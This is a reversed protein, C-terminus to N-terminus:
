WMGGTRSRPPRAPLLRQTPGPRVPAPADTPLRRPWVRLRSSSQWPPTPPPGASHVGPRHPPVPRPAGPLAASLNGESSSTINTMPAWRGSVGAPTTQRTLPPQPRPRGPPNPQGARRRGGGHGSSVRSGGFRGSSSPRGSPGSGGHPGGGTPGGGRPGGSPGGGGPGRHPGGGGHSGPRYPGMTSTHPRGRVWGLATGIVYARAVTGVVSRRGGGIRLSGLIWFPIMTLIYFLALAMLLNVLGSTTAGFPTFGGPALFVTIATILTLSQAIQIALCGGFAKWWWRAIGETQPLAHFMLALPAGAVLVVTLAVRVLYTVLVVLLMGAVFVGVFLVFIGGNVSSLVLDRLTAGASAAELGGGMVAQAVGNAIEIAKSAVWLSMAGAVFGIVIRPAIEKISYQTQLSEYAMVVMGAILILLAYCALLIQWSNTWLQGIRPLSDVTPTTLLTTSLLELLPNLAATVLGRFFTTIANTVCGGLSTVGCSVEGTDREGPQGTSPGTLSPASATPQPLCDQGACPVPAVTSAPIQCGAEPSGGLCTAPSPPVPIGAPPSTTAPAAPPCVMLPSDPICPDATPSPPIFATPITASLAPAAAGTMTVLGVPVVLCTVV